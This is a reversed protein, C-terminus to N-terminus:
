KSFKSKIFKDYSDIFESVKNEEISKHIIDGQVCDIDTKSVTEIEKNDNLGVIYVTYGLDKCLNVIDSIVANNFDSKGNLNTVDLKVSRIDIEKFTRLTDLRLELSSICIDTGIESMKEAFFKYSNLDKITIRDNFCLELSGKPLNYKEINAKLRNVFDHRSVHVNCINVFMKVDVNQNEKIEVVKKCAKNILYEDLTTIMGLEEASKMFYEEEIKGLVPHNWVIKAELYILNNNKLNIRPTYEVEFEEKAIAEKLSVEMKNKNELKTKLVKNHFYYDNKGHEKIYYMADDAYTMLMSRNEADTPYVAVGMSYELMIKVNDIVIPEILGKKLNDLNRTIEEVTNINKMLIAFEDGGLRYSEATKPLSLDLKKGLEILLMDGADHGMTDNIHKFGDLDMFCVAFKKKESILRETDEVFKRRNGKGTLQDTTAQKKIEKHEKFKNMNLVRDLAAGLALSLGMFVIYILIKM